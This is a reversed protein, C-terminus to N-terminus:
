RGLAGQTLSVQKVGSWGSFSTSVEEPLGEHEAVYPIGVGRVVSALSRLLLAQVCVRTPPRDPSLPPSSMVAAIKGQSAAWLLVKWVGGTKTLDWGKGGPQQLDVQLM